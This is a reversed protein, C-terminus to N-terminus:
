RFGDAVPMPRNKALKMAIAMEKDTGSLKDQISYHVPVDPIIGRDLRGTVAMEYRIMPVVVKVKTNPLIVMPMAGSNNGGYAAGSEQGIFTARHHFRTISMFEGTTSFSGGNELILVQGGFHPLLPQQRGWNPHGTHVVKGGVDEFGAGIHLTTPKGDKDPVYKAFNYDRKLAYLASYYDFPDSALHAYLKRGYDDEGGGNDRVDIILSKSGKDEIEKFADDYWQDLPKDQPGGTGVFGKIRMVAIKGNEAFSLDGTHDSDQQNGVVESYGKGNVVLSRAEGNRSLQLHFPSRLGVVTYLRAQYRGPLTLGYDVADTSNGDRPTTASLAKNIKTTTLGNISLIESGELRSDALDKLIFTRGHECYVRFPLVPVNERLDQLTDASVGIGTHGCKIKSCLPAVLRYFDLSSMPHSIKKATGDFWADIEKKTSYRYLGPHGEEFASRMVSFDERLQAETFVPAQKLAILALLSSVM